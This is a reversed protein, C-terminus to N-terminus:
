GPLAREERPESTIDWGPTLVPRVGDGAREDGHGTPADEDVGHGRFIGPPRPTAPM